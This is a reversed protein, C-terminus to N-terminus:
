TEIDVFAVSIIEDNIYKINIIIKILVLQVLVMFDYNLGMEIMFM